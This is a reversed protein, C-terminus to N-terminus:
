SQRREAGSERLVWELAGINGELRCAAQFNDTDTFDKKIADKLKARLEKIREAIKIQLEATVHIM